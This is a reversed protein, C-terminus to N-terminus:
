SYLYFLPVNVERKGRPLDLSLSPSGRGNRGGTGAKKGAKADKKQANKVTKAGKKLKKASPRQTLSPTGRGDSESSSSDTDSSDNDRAKNKTNNRQNNSENKIKDKGKSESSSSDTNSSDSDQTIKSNSTNTNKSGKEYSEVIEIDSDAGQERSDAGQHRRDVVTHQRGNATRQRGSGHSGVMEIDSDSTQTCHIVKRKKKSSQLSSADTPETLNAAFAGGEVEEIIDEADEVGDGDGGGGGSGGGDVDGDGDGDEVVTGRQLRKRESKGNSGSIKRKTDNAASRGNGSKAYIADRTGGDGRSKGNAGLVNSPSFPTLKPINLVPNVDTNDDRRRTKLISRPTTVKSGGRVKNPTSNATKERSGKTQQRRDGRQQRRDTTQEPQGGGRGRNHTRPTVTPSKDRGKQSRRSVELVGSDSSDENYTRKSCARSARSARRARSAGGGRQQVKHPAVVESENSEDSGDPPFPPFPDIGGGDGDGRGDDNYAGLL